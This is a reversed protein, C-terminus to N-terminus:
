AAAKGEYLESLVKFAEAGTIVRGETPHTFADNTGSDDKIQHKSGALKFAFRAAGMTLDEHPTLIAAESAPFAVGILQELKKRAEATIKTKDDYDPETQAESQPREVGSSLWNAFTEFWKRQPKAVVADAILHCRSKSVILNHEHDMEAVVDFEYETGARQIPAMGIKKPVMTKRGGSEQEELVYETKSRMTVIVHIDSQILANVLKNHHPTVERWATFSNGGKQRKQQQDHMELVGGEGEWAHSLSDIILVSYCGAAHAAGIAQIYKQPSFPPALTMQDFDFLDAYKSASGRETDILAIRGEGQLAQAALLATFTKGSGSPGTFAVRGKAQAKEAKIFQM